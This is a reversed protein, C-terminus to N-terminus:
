PKTFLSSSLALFDRNLLSSFAYWSFFLVADEFAQKGAHLVLQFLVDLDQITSPEINLGGLNPTFNEIFCGKKSYVKDATGKKPDFIQQPSFMWREAPPEKSMDKGHLILDWFSKFDTGGPFVGGMGVIAIPQSFKM